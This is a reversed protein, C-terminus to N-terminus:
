QLTRRVILPLRYGFNAWMIFRRNLPVRKNNSRKAKSPTVVCDAYYPLQQKNQKQKMFNKKKVLINLFLIM